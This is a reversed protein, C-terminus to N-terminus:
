VDVWVSVGVRVGVRTGVRVGLSVLVGAGVRVDMDVAVRTCGDAVLGGAVAAGTNGVFVDAGITGVM